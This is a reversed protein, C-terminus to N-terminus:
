GWNCPIHASDARCSCRPWTETKTTKATTDGAEDNADFENVLQVSGSATGGTGTGTGQEQRM